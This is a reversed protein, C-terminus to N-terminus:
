NYYENSAPRCPLPTFIERQGAATLPVFAKVSAVPSSNFRQRSPQRTPLPAYNKLEM